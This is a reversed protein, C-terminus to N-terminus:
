ASILGLLTEYIHYKDDNREPLNRLLFKWVRAEDPRLKQATDPTIFRKHKRGPLNLQILKERVLM